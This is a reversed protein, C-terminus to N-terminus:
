TPSRWCRRRASRRADHGVLRRVGQAGGRGRPRRGRRDLRPARALEEGTAPNLVAETEGGESAVPEGDIFNSLTDESGDGDHM